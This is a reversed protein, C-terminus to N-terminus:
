TRCLLMAVPLDWRFYEPYLLILTLLVYAIGLTSRQGPAPKLHLVKSLSYTKCSTSRPLPSPGIQFVGLFSSTRDSTDRPLLLDYRFYDWCRTPGVQLIGLLTNHTLFRTPGVRLLLLFSYGGLLSRALLLHWMFCAIM